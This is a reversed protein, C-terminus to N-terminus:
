FGGTLTIRATGKAPDTTATFVLGRQVLQFLLESFHAIDQKSSYPHDITHM